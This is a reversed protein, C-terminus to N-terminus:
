ENTHHASRRQPTFLLARAGPSRKAAPGQFARRQDSFNELNFETLREPSLHRESDGRHHRTLGGLWAGSLQDAPDWDGSQTNLVTLVQM